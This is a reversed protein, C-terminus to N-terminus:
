RPRGAGRRSRGADETAVEDLVLDRVKRKTADWALELGHRKATADSPPADRRQPPQRSRSADRTSEEEELAALKESLKMRAVEQRGDPEGDSRFCGSCAPRRATRDRRGVQAQISEPLVLKMGGAM